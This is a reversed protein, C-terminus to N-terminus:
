ASAATCGAAELEFARAYDFFRELDSQEQEARRAMVGLM